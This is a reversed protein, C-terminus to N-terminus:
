FLIFFFVKLNANCDHNVFRAPGTFLCACGRKASHMVSFDNDALRQEDEPSLEAIIGNLLRVEDGETWNRTAILRAEIKDSNKYRFTQDIEYGARPLYMSLYRQCHSQFYERFELSKGQEIVPRLLTAAAELIDEPDPKYDEPIFFYNTIYLAVDEVTRSGNNIDRILRGVAQCLNM